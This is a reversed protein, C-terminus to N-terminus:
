FSLWIRTNKALDKSREIFFSCKKVFFTL